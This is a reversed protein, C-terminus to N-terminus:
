HLTSTGGDDGGDDGGGDGSDDDFFKSLQHDQVIGVLNNCNWTNM